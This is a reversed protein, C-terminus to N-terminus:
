RGPEVARRVGEGLMTWSVTALLIALTPFVTLWITNRAPDYPMPTRSTGWATSLMNGWSATPLKIGVGLFTVGAEVLINTAVLFTSYALLVPLVHPFLHRCLIRWNGAGVMRASEVFEREKLAAVEARVIRAPYFWTFLGIVVSLSCVGPQLFGLTIGYLRPGLTAGVLILLLLLPLAMVLDAVRSIVGDILGGFYGAAGGALLGLVISLLTAGLAVELSVRGGILLRQLEDRGLAGDGGLPLLTTKTGPPPPKGFELTASTTHLDPVRSWMGVPRLNENVAYPFPDNPGHGLLRELLPPGLWVLGILVILFAASVLALRDRKLRRWVLTRPTTAVTHDTAAIDV